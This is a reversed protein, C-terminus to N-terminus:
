KAGASGSTLRRLIMGIIAVAMVAFPVFKVPLYQTWDLGGLYGFIDNAFPLVGGILGLAANFVYTRYGKLQPLFLFALVALAAVALFIWM